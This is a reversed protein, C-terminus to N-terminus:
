CNDDGGCGTDSGSADDECDTVSATIIDKVDLEYIEFLAKVILM